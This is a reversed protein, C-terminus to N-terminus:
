DAGPAIFVSATSGAFGSNFARLYPYPNVSVASQHVGDLATVTQVPLWASTGDIAHSAQITLIATGGTVFMTAYFGRSARADIASGTQLAAGSAASVLSYAGRTSLIAM